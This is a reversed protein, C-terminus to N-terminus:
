EGEREERRDRRRGGGEGKGKGGMMTFIKFFSFARHAVYLLVAHGESHTVLVPVLEM